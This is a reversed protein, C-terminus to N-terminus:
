MGTMQLAAEYVRQQQNAECAINSSWSYYDKKSHSFM